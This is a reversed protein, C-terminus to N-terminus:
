GIGKEIIIKKAIQHCSKLVADNDSLLGKQLYMGIIKHTESYSPFLKNRTIFRDAKYDLDFIGRETKGFLRAIETPLLTTKDYDQQDNCYNLKLADHDNNAFLNYHKMYPSLGVLNVMRDYAYEESCFEDILKIGFNVCPARKPVALYRFALIQRKSTVPKITINQNKFEFLSANECIHSLRSFWSRWYKRPSSFGSKKSLFIVERLTELKRLNAESFLEREPPSNEDQRIAELYEWAFCIATEYGVGTFGLPDNLNDSGGITASSVIDKLLLMKKENLTRRGANSDQCVLVGMDIMYPVAIVEGYDNEVFHPFYDKASSLGLRNLWEDVKGLPQLLDSFRKKQEESLLFYDDIALINLDGHPHGAYKKLERYTDYKNSKVVFSEFFQDTKGFRTSNRTELLSNIVKATDINGYNGGSAKSGDTNTIASLAIHEAGVYLGVADKLAFAHRAESPSYCPLSLNVSVRSVNNDPSVKFTDLVDPLLEGRLLDFVVRNDPDLGRDDKTHVQVVSLSDGETPLQKIGIVVDALNLAQKNIAVDESTITCVVTLKLERFLRFLLPIFDPDGLASPFIDPLFTLNDIAVFRDGSSHEAKFHEKLRWYIEFFLRNRDWMPNPSLSVTTPFRRVLGPFSKELKRRELLSDGYNKGSIYPFARFFHANLENLFEDTDGSSDKGCKEFEKKLASMDYIDSAELFVDWTNTRTAHSSRWALFLGNDSSCLISRRIVSKGYYRPGKILISDGEKLAEYYCDDWGPLHAVSIQSSNTMKERSLSKEVSLVAQPSPWILLGDRSCIELLHTGPSTKRYRSKIIELDIKRGRHESKVNTLRIVTDAHFEIDPNDKEPHGEVVLLVSAHETRVINRINWLASRTLGGENSEMMTHDDEDFAEPFYVNANDIVVLSCTSLDFHEKVDDIETSIHEILEFTNKCAKVPQYFVCTGRELKDKSKTLKPLAADCKITYMKKNKYFCCNNKFTELLSPFGGIINCISDIDQELLVFFVNRKEIVHRRAIELALFTKGAGTDGEIVTLNGMNSKAEFFKTSGSFIFDFAQWTM